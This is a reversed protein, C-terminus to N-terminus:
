ALKSWKLITFKLNEAVMTFYYNDFHVLILGIQLMESHWIEFDEVM